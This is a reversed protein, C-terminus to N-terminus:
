GAPRATRPAVPAGAVGATRRCRWAWTTVSAVRHSSSGVKLELNRLYSFTGLQRSCTLQGSELSSSQLAGAAGLKCHRPVEVTLRQHLERGAAADM